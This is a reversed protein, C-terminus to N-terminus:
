VEEIEEEENSVAGGAGVGSANVNLSTLQSRDEGGEEQVKGFVSGFYSTAKAFLGTDDCGNAAASTATVDDQGNGQRELVLSVPRSELLEMRTLPGIGPGFVDRGNIALIEDDKRIGVEAGLGTRHLDSVVLYTRKIPVLGRGTETKSILSFGKGTNKSLIVVLREKGNELNSNNSLLWHSSRERVMEIAEACSVKDDDNDESDDPQANEPDIANDLKKELDPQLETNTEDSSKEAEKKRNKQAKSDNAKRGKEKKDNCEGDVQVREGVDESETKNGGRKNGPRNRDQNKKDEDKVDDDENENADERKKNEQSGQMDEDDVQDHDKGKDEDENKDKDEDGNKDEKDADKKEDKNEKKGNDGDKKEDKGEYQRWGLLCTADMYNDALDYGNGVGLDSLLQDLKDMEKVCRKEFGPELM